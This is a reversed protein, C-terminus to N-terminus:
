KKKVPLPKLGKVRKVLIKLTESEVTGVVFLLYASWDKFKFKKSYLPAGMDPLAFELLWTKSRLELAMKDGHNFDEVHVLYPKKGFTRTFTLDVASAAATHLLIIRAKKSVLPSFDCAFKHATPAGDPDMHIVLSSTEGAVLLVDVEYLPTGCPVVPNALGVAVKYTGPPKSIPGMVDGFKIAQFTCEGDVSIDLPLEPSLGFDLGPIGHVVYVMANGEESYAPAPTLFFCLGLILFKCTNKRMATGKIIDNLVFILMIGGCTLCFCFFVLGRPSFLCM